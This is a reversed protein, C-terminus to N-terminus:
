FCCGILFTRQLEKKSFMCSVKRRKIYIWNNTQGFVLDSGIEFSSKEWRVKRAEKEVWLEGFVEFRSQNGLELWSGLQTQASFGRIRIM